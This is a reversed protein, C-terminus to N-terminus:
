GKLLEDIPTDLEDPWVLLTREEETDGCFNEKLRVYVMPLVEEDFGPEVKSVVRILEVEAGNVHQMDSDLHKTIKM